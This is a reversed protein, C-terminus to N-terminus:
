SDVKFRKLKWHDLIQRLAVINALLDQQTERAERLLLIIRLFGPPYSGLVKIRLTECDIIALPLRVSM